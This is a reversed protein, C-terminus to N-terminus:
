LTHNRISIAQNFDRFPVKFSLWFGRGCGGSQTHCHTILQVTDFNNKQNTETTTTKHTTRERERDTPSERQKETETDARSTQRDRESKRQRERDRDREREGRGSIVTGTSQAYFVM